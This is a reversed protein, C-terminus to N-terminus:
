VVGEKRGLVQNAHTIAAYISDEQAQTKEVMWQSNSPSRMDREMAPGAWHMALKLAEVCEKLASRHQALAEKQAKYDAYLMDWMQKAEVNALRVAEFAERHSQVTILPVIEIGATVCTGRYERAEIETDFVTSLNLRNDGPFKLAWAEPEGQAQPQARGQLCPTETPCKCDPYSCPKAGEPGASDPNTCQRLTASQAQPQAPAAPSASIMAVYHDYPGQMVRQCDPGFNRLTYEDDGDDAAKLMEATPEVPVLKWGKAVAQPEAPAPRTYLPMGIKKEYESAEDAWELYDPGDEMSGDQMANATPVIYAVVEGGARSDAALLATCAYKHAYEKIWDIENETWKFTRPEPHSHPDIEPLPPLEAREDHQTTM